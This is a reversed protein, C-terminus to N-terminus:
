IGKLAALRREIDKIPDEANGSNDISTEELYQKLLDNSQEQETRKDVARLFSYDTNEKFEVGKVVALRKAIDLDNSVNLVKNEKINKLRERIEKDVDDNNIDNPLPEDMVSTVSFYLFFNNCMFRKM